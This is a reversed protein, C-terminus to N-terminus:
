VAKRGRTMIKYRLSLSAGGVLKGGTGRCKFYSLLFLLFCLIRHVALSLFTLCFLSAYTYLLLLENKARLNHYIITKGSGASTKNCEAASLIHIELLSLDTQEIEAKLM